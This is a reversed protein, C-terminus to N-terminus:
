ICYFQAAQWKYVGSSNGMTSKLGLLMLQRANLEDDASNSAEHGGRCFRISFQTWICVMLSLSVFSSLM